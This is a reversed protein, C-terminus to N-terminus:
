RQVEEKQLIGQLGALDLLVAKQDPIMGAMWPRKGVESRWRVTAPVVKSAGLVEDCVFGIRNNDVLIIQRFRRNRLHVASELREAPLLVKTLDIIRCLTGYINRECVQLDLSPNRVDADLMEVGSIQTMKVALTFEALQFFMCDFPANADVQVVEQELIPSPEQCLLLDNLYHSLATEEEFLAPGSEKDVCLSM